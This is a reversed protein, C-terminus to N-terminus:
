ADACEDSNQMQSKTRTETRAKCLQKHTLARNGSTRGCLWGSSSLWVSGNELQAKGLKYWM